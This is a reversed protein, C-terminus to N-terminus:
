VPSAPNETKRKVYDNFAKEGEENWYQEYYSWRTQSSYDRCNMGDKM